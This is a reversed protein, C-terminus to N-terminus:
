RNSQKTIIGHHNTSVSSVVRDTFFGMPFTIGEPLVWLHYQNSTDVLRGEAPYLQVAEREPGAIQNKIEQFDRWSDCPERDNRRISLYGCLGKWDDFEPYIFGDAAKGHRWLVTYVDNAWVDVAKEENYVRKATKRDMPFGAAKAQKIVAEIALKVPKHEQKRKTLRNMDTDAKRHVLIHVSHKSYRM